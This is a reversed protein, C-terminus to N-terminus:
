CNNKSREALFVRIKQQELYVHAPTATVIVIIATILAFGYHEPLKPNQSHHSSISVDIEPSSM